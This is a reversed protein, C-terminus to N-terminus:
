GDPLGIHGGAQAVLQAVREVTFEDLIAHGAHGFAVSLLGQEGPRGTLAEAQDASTTIPTSLDIVRRAVGAFRGAGLGSTIRGNGASIVVGSWPLSANTGPGRSEATTRSAGECVSYILPGWSCVLDVYQKGESDTLYPGEGGVFFPPTGGVAGFARVPSNVGGPVVATARRFFEASTQQTGM